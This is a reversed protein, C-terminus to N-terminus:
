KGYTEYREVAAGALPYLKLIREYDEPYIEKIVALEEGVLSRFSFGLERSDKPLYLRKKRIYQMVDKKGWHSIPYFRGRKLDVSGSRKIMARRVLSDSIREGAAIWEIGTLERVYGYIDNIDLLDVYQDANRFTGYRFFGSVEFHPVRIIETNYYREYKRLTREQFELGPVMYMFFPVVRKFYKFCLDLTVISDKGTSFGVLVSNTIRSQAKIPDYLLTGM